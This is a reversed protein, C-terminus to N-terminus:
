VDILAHAFSIRRGTSVFSKCGKNSVNPNSSTTAIIMTPLSGIRRIFRFAPYGKPSASRLKVGSPIRVTGAFCYTPLREKGAGRGPKGLANPISYKLRSCVDAAHWQQIPLQSEFAAYRNRRSWRQANKADRDETRLTSRNRLTSAVFDAPPLTGAWVFVARWGQPDVRPKTKRRV